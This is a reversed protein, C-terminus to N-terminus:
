GTLKHAGSQGQLLGTLAVHSDGTESEEDPLERPLAPAADFQLIRVQNMSAPRGIRVPLRRDRICM